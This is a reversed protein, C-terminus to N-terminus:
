TWSWSEMGEEVYNWVELKGDGPSVSDVVNEVPEVEELLGRLNWMSLFLGLTGDYHENLALFLARNEDKAMEMAICSLFEDDVTEDERYSSHETERYGQCLALKWIADMEVDLSHLYWSFSSHDSFYGGLQSYDGAAQYMGLYM